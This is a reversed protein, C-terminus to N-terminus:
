DSLSRQGEEGLKERVREGGDRIEEEPVTDSARKLDLAHVKKLRHTQTYTNIHTYTWSGVVSPAMVSIPSLKSM